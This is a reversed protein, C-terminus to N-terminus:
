LHGLINKYREIAEHLKDPTYPKSIIENFPADRYDEFFYEPEHATLGIVITKAKVPDHLKRIAKVAEIGNMVPMEIDMFIIDIDESELIQIAEKGNVSEIIKHPSPDLSERIMMRNFVIDDVILIKLLEKM